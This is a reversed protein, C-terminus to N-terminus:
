LVQAPRRRGNTPGRAWDFPRWPLFLLARSM